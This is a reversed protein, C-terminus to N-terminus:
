RYISFCSEIKQVVKRNNSAVFIISSVNYEAQIGLTKPLTVFFSKRRGVEQRAVECVEELVTKSTVLDDM